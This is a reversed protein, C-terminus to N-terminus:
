IMRYMMIYPRVGSAVGCVFIHMGDSWQHSVFLGVLGTLLFRCLNTLFPNEVVVGGNSV